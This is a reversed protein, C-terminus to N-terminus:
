SVCIQEFKRNVQITKEIPLKECLQVVFLECTCGGIRGTILYIKNAIPSVHFNKENNDRVWKMIAWIAQCEATQCQNVSLNVTNNHRFLNQLQNTPLANADAVIIKVPNLNGLINEKTAAAKSITKQQCYEYGNKTYKLHAIGYINGRTTILLIEDGIKAFFNSAVLLTTPLLETAFTFFHQVKSKILKERVSICFEYNSSYGHHKYCFVDLVVLQIKKPFLEPIKELFEKGSLFTIAEGNQQQTETSIYILFLKENSVYIKVFFDCETNAPM